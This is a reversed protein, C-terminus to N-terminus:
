RMKRITIQRLSYFGQSFFSQMPVYQRTITMYRDYIGLKERNLFAKERFCQNRILWKWAAYIGDGGLAKWKERFEHWGVKEIDLAM